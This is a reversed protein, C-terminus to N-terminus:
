SYLVVSKGLNVCKRGLSKLLLECIGFTFSLVLLFILYEDVPKNDNLVNYLVVALVKNLYLDYIAISKSMRHYEDSLIVYNIFPSSLSGSM